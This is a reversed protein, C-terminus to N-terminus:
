NQPPKKPIIIDDRRRAAHTAKKEPTSLISLRTMRDYVTSEAIHLIDAIERLTKNQHIYLEKLESHKQDEEQKTWKRAV